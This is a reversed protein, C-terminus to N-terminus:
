RKNLIAMFRKAPQEYRIYIRTHSNKRARQLNQGRHELLRRSAVFFDVGDLATKGFTEDVGLAAVGLYSILLYERAKYRISLIQTPLIKPKM